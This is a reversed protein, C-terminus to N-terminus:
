LRGGARFGATEGNVVSFTISLHPRKCELHTVNSVAFHQRNRAVITKWRLADASNTMQQANDYSVVSCTFQHQEMVQRAEALCTGFPVWQLIQEDMKQAHSKPRSCGLLVVLLVFVLLKMVISAAQRKPEPLGLRLALFVPLRFGATGSAM